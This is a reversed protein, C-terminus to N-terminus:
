RDGGRDLATVKCFSIQPLLRDAQFLQHEWDGGFRICDQKSGTGQFDAGQLYPYAFASSSVNEYNM